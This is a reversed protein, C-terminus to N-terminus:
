CSEFESAMAPPLKGGEFLLIQFAFVEFTKAENEFYNMVKCTILRTM